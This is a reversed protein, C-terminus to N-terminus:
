SWPPTEIGAVQSPVTKIVRGNASRWTITAGSIPGVDQAINTVFVNDTVGFTGTSAPRYDSTRSTPPIPPKGSAPIHVTVSAVGNPVLGVMRGYDTVLGWNRIDTATAGCTTGGESSAICVGEGIERSLGARDSAIERAVLTLTSARMSAPIRRAEAHANASLETLCSPALAWGKFPSATPIVYYAEGDVTAALRIFRGFQRRHGWGVIARPLSDASVAPKHLAALVALLGHDPPSTTVRDGTSLDVASEGLHGCGPLKRTARVAEVAYASERARDATARSVPAAQVPSSGGCGALLMAAVVFLVLGGIAARGRILGSELVAM